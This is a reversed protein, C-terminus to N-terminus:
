VRTPTAPHGERPDDHQAGPEPTPLLALEREVVTTPPPADVRSASSTDNRARSCREAIHGEVMSLQQRLKRAQDHLSEVTSSSLRKLDLAGKGSKRGSRGGSRGGGSSAGAAQACSAQGAAAEEAPASGGAAGHEDLCPDLLRNAIRGSECHAILLARTLPPLYMASDEALQTRRRSPPVLPSSRLAGDAADKSRSRVRSRARIQAAFSLRAPQKGAGDAKADDGATRGSPPTMVAAAAAGGGSAAAREPPWVQADQPKRRNEEAHTIDRQMLFRWFDLHRGEQALIYRIFALRRRAALRRFWASRLLMFGITIGGWVMTSAFILMYGGTWQLSCNEALTPVCVSSGVSAGDTANPTYCEMLLPSRDLTNGATEELQELTFRYRRDLSSCGFVSGLDAFDQDSDDDLCDPDDEAVFCQSGGAFVTDCREATEERISRRSASDFCIDHFFWLAMFVHILISLPFTTSLVFEMQRDHTHPPPSIRRLWNYRDVWHASWFYLAIALYLFPFGFSFMLGVSLMKSMLQIRFALTVDARVEYTENMMPQTQVRPALVYRRFLDPHPRWLDFGLNILLLDGLLAKMIFAGGTAYWQLDFHGSSDTEFNRIYRFALAGVANNFWQFFALKVMLHQEHEERTHPRELGHRGHALIPVVLFVVLHGSAILLVSVVNLSIMEFTTAIPRMEFRATVAPMQRDMWMVVAVITVTACLSVVVMLASSLVQRALKERRSCQLNHWYVDQPEPPRQVRMSGGFIHSAGGSRLSSSRLKEPLEKIVEQAVQCKNFTVFAWGTSTYRRRMLQKIEREKADIALLSRRARRRALAVAGRAVARDRHRPSGGGGEDDGEDDGQLALQRLLALSAETHVDKLENARELAMVLERNNLAVGVHVVEGFREFFDRVQQSGWGEPVGSVMITFDAATLSPTEADSNLIRSRVEGLRDRLYFLFSVLSAATIFEIVGYSHGGKALVGDVASNGLSHWIFIATNIAAAGEVKEISLQTGELNIVMNSLNLFFLALFFRSGVYMFHFYQSVDVGMRDFTRLSTYLPYLQGPSHDDDRQRLLRSSAHQKALELSPPPPLEAARPSSASPAHRAGRRGVLRARPTSSPSSPAPPAAGAPAPTAPAAPAAAAAEAVSSGDFTRPASNPPSVESESSSSAGGGGGAAAASGDDSSKSAARGGPRVHLDRMLGIPSTVVGEPLESQEVTVDLFHRRRGWAAQLTRAATNERMEVQRRALRAAKAQASVGRGEAPDAFCSALYQVTSNLIERHMPAGGDHAPRAGGSSPRSAVARQVSSSQPPPTGVPSAPRPSALPSDELSVDGAAVSAADASSLGALAGGSDKAAPLLGRILGPRPPRGVGVMTASETAEASDGQAYLREMEARLIAQTSGGAEITFADDPSDDEDGGGPGGSPSCLPAIEASPSAPLRGRLRSSSSASLQRPAELQRQACYAVEKHELEASVRRVQARIKEEGIREQWPAFSAATLM